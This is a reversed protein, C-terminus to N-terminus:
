ALGVVPSVAHPTSVGATEISAIQRAQPTDKTSVTLGFIQYGENIDQLCCLGPRAYITM